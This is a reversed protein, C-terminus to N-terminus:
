AGNVDVIDDEDGDDDNALEDRSVVVSKRPQRRAGKRVSGTPRGPKYLGDGPADDDESDNVVIENRGAGRKSGQSGGAEGNRAQMLVPDIPIDDDGDSPQGTPRVTGARSTNEVGDGIGVVSEAEIKASTDENGLSSKKGRNRRPVRQKVLDPTFHLANDLGYGTAPQRLSHCTMSRAVPKNRTSTTPTQFSAHPPQPADYMGNPPVNAYPAGNPPLPGYPPVSAQPPPRARPVSLPVHSANTAAIEDDSFEVPQGSSGPRDGPGNPAPPQLPPHAMMRSDPRPPPMNPRYHSDMGPPYPHPPPPNPPPYGSNAPHPPGYQRMDPGSHQYRLHPPVYHLNSPPYPQNPPGPRAAPTQGRAAMEQMSEPTLPHYYDNGNYVHNVENPRYNDNPRFGARSQNEEERKRKGLNTSQEIQNGEESSINMAGAITSLRDKLKQNETRLTEAETDPLQGNRVSKVMEDFKNMMASEQLSLSQQRSREARLDQIVGRLDDITGRLTTLQASMSDIQRRQDEIVQDHQPLVPPPQAYAHLPQPVPTPEPRAQVAPTAMSGSRVLRELELLRNLLGGQEDDTAAIPPSSNGGDHQDSSTTSDKVPSTNAVPASIVRRPAPSSTSTSTVARVRPKPTPPAEDNLFAPEVVAKTKADKIHAKSFKYFNQGKMADRKREPADKCHQGVVTDCGVCFLEAMECGAAMKHVVGDPVVRTTDGIRTGKSTGRERPRSYASTLKIWENKFTGLNGQCTNCYVHVKNFPAKRQEGAAKRTQAM